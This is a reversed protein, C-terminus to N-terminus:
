QDTSALQFSFSRKSSDYPSVWDLFQAEELNLLLVSFVDDIGRVM